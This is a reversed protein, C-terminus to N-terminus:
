SGDLMSGPSRNRGLLWRTRRMSACPSLSRMSAAGRERLEAIQALEWGYTSRLGDAAEHVIAARRNHPDDYEVVVRRAGAAYAKDVVARAIRPDDVDAIVFVDQGPQVNVGIRVVLKAFRDIRTDLRRDGTETDNM